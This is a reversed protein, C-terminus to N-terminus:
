LRYVWVTDIGTGIEDIPKLSSFPFRCAYIVQQRTRTSRLYKELPGMMTDVGFICLADYQHLPFTWLDRRYFKVNPQRMAKMRSYLILWGNLEVGHVHSYMGLSSALRCIRGDGSGVDIFTDGRASHKRFARSLNSLQESTAPVYPLCHKRLAPLLFPTSLAVLGLAVAGFAGGVLLGLRSPAVRENDVVPEIHTTM